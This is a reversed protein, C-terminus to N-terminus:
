EASATPWAIPKAGIAILPTPLRAVGDTNTKRGAFRAMVGSGPAHIDMQPVILLGSCVLSIGFVWYLVNRAGWRDSMWGGLARIVGSPFSFIAALMGAVVVTTGYANVYYPVLWQALAVFGGFVFFYYVGFRWVRVDKLPSLRQRLTKQRSGEPVRTKTVLVFVIGTVALLVAYMRPLNRWGEINNGNDTLWQLARPAGLSTLAAGANGAGFIGLATGQLSRPFWVSTYAIGIAFSTGAFGFGMGAVVFQGYTNCEGVLYMPVAACLLLVGFVIRGGWRDTALGMPLRFLAGTLVPIGILWGMEKPGWDFVGNDVLFTVLVGNMMWAAFCVTFAFTNM